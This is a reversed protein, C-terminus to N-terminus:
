VGNQAMRHSCRQRDVAVANKRLLNLADLPVHRGEARKRGGFRANEPALFKKLRIIHKFDSFKIKALSSNFPSARSIFWADDEVDIEIVENKSLFKL